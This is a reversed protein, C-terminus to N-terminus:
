SLHHRRNCYLDYLPVDNAKPLRDFAALCFNSGVYSLGDNISLFYISVTSSITGESETESETETKTFLQLQKEPSFAEQAIPWANDGDYQSVDNGNPTLVSTKEDQSATTIGIILAFFATLFLYRRKLCHELFYV